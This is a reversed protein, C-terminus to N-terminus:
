ERAKYWERNTVCVFAQGVYGGLDLGSIHVIVNLPVQVSALRFRFSAEWIGLTERPKPHMRVLSSPFILM